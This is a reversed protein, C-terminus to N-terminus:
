KNLAVAERILDKVASENMTDGESFDISRHKKSELGNNFLKHPDKFISAACVMGNHVYVGVDWKWEETIDPDAEHILKRLKALVKGRWDPRDAIQKDINKTADM